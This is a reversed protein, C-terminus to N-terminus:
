VMFNIITSILHLVSFVSIPVLAICNKRDLGYFLFSCCPFICLGLLVIAHVVGSYYLIWCVYYLLVFSASLIIFLSFKIKRAYINKIVCLVALMLIQFVTVFVDLVQTSSENRLIDNQAPVFFWIINPLMILVFVVVASINFGFKYSKIKMFFNYCLFVAFDIVRYM